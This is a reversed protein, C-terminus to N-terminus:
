LYENELSGHATEASNCILTQCGCYEEGLLIVIGQVIFKMLVEIHFDLVDFICCVCLMTFILYADQRRWSCDCEFTYPM